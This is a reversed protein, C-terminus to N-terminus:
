VMKSPDILKDIEEEDLFGLEGNAERLTLGKDFAYKALESAKDYGIKPSLATVLM